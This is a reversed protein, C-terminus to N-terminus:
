DAYFQSISKKAAKLLQRVREAGIGFHSAIEPISMPFDCGIGFNLRIVQQQRPDLRGIAHRLKIRDSERLLDADARFTHDALRSRDSGPITQEAHDEDMLCDLSDYSLTKDLAQHISKRICFPAFTSFRVGREPDFHSVAEILGINGEAILDSLSLGLGRYHNAISIVMRLNCNILHECAHSDGSQVKVAIDYEEQASLVPYKRVEKFYRNINEDDRNIINCLSKFTTNRSM